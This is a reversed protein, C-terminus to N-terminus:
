GALPWPPKFRLRKFFGALTGLATAPAAEELVVIPDAVLALTYLYYLMFAAIIMFVLDACDFQPESQVRIHGNATGGHPSVHRLRKPSRAPRRPKHPSLRRVTTGARTEVM